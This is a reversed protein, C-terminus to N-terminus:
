LSQYLSTNNKNVTLVIKTLGKEKALGEVFGVAKRGYGRGRRSSLVYIKSLFLEEEKPQVSIYGIFQGAERILFYLYGSAIQESIAQVSQFRSLMYEVQERGIIPIYHETWIEKALAEVAKIHQKTAVRIFM